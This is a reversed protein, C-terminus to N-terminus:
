GAAELHVTQLIRYMVEEPLAKGPGKAYGDGCRSRNHPNPTCIPPRRFDACSKRRLSAAFDFALAFDASIAAAIAAVNPPPMAVGAM